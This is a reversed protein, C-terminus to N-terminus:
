GGWHRNGCFNSECGGWGEGGNFNSDSYEEIYEVKVELEMTVDFWAKAKYDKVETTVDFKTKLKTYKVEIAVDIGAKPGAVIDDIKIVIDIEEM